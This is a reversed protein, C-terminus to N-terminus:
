AQAAVKARRRRAISGVLGLGALLMAIAEPEPVATVAINDIRLESTNSADGIDIVGIVLSVAGNSQAAYSYQSSVWDWEVNNFDGFTGLFRSNLVQSTIDVFSVVTNNIAIFGYDPQTTETSLFAWDFSIDLIDGALATFDQRIASGEYAFGGVDLLEVPVGALDPVEFFDVAPNGSNNNFGAELPFDDENDVSATSLVAVRSGSTRVQADGYLSWGTAGSSFSGNQFTTSQAWAPAVAAAALAAALTLNRASKM